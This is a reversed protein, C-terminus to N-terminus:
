LQKILKQMQKTKNKICKKKDNHTHTNKKNQM